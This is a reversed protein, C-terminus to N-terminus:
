VAGGGVGFALMSRALEEQLGLSTLAKVDSLYRIYRESTFSTFNIDIVNGQLLILSSNGFMLFQIFAVAHIFYICHLSKYQCITNALVSCHYTLM